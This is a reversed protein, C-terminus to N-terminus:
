KLKQVTPFTWMGDLVEKRPQYLRVIYNWGDMIPLCNIRDDDCGGFHITFSGDKNPKGSINNVSYANRNNQQFYGKRNYLSISWFADVPVDKVSVKYQGVSLNPEINLYIADKAPLGAWGFANGTLFHVPDVEEKNGFSKSSDTLGRALELLASHTAKYSDMDYNPMNYPRTSAAEVKIKDQLSNVLKIDKQSAADVLIRMTIVVYPTDFEKTTLTYSGGGLFVKNTYGDQNIVQMSLYRKGTDPLIVTAGKSIDVISASYLTDRNMRIVNQADLPTPNRIHVLKNVGGTLKLIRGIQMDTEARAFNDVNVKVPAGASFAFQSFVLTVTAFFTTRSKTTINLFKM